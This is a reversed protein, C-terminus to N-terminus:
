AAQAHGESEAKAVLAELTEASLYYTVTKFVRGMTIGSVVPRLRSVMGRATDKNCERKDAIQQVTAGDKRTMLKLVDYMAPQQWLAKKARKAKPAKAAKAKRPKAAKAAKPADPESNREPQPLGSRDTAHWRFLKDDDQKITFHEGPKATKGLAVKAARACNSRNTYGKTSTM